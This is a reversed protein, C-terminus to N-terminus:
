PKGAGYHRRREADLESELTRPDRRAEPLAQWAAVLEAQRALYRDDAARRAPDAAADARAQQEGRWRALETARQAPDPQTWELLRQKLALAEPATLESRALREPLAASLRAARARAAAPDADVRQELLRLEHAFGLYGLIRALEAERDARGALSDQLQQWQQHSLGAPASPGAAPAAEATPVPGYPQAGPTPAPRAPVRAAEAPATAAAAQVAAALSRAPEEAQRLLGLWALAAILGLVGLGAIWRGSRTRTRTSFPPPSASRM